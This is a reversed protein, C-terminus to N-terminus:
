QFFGDVGRRGRVWDAGPIARKGPAQIEVVEIGGDAVGLIPVGSVSEMAGPEPAHPHSQARLVKYTDGDLDITAAPAPSLARVRNIFELRSMTPRLPRDGATLKSAYTAGEEVQPVPILDGAVYGPIVTRLLGAGLSALRGTLEGATEDRKIDVAQATLVPGSDVGEDLSIITVGTMSDGAMLARAVPAAGRWRPLLSFHVNLMGHAPTALAERGLIMGYAVVVGLDFPGEEGLIADLEAPNSPQRLELGLDEARQKVPSSQLRLSRGTPRDPRTIVLGVESDRTMTDLTPIAAGPTGLFVIRTM